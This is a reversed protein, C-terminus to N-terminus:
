FVDPINSGARLFDKLTTYGLGRLNKALFLFLYATQLADELADHQEFLPIGHEVSLKNLNFARQGKKGVAREHKQQQLHFAAALKVSDLSPNRIKGGLTKALARNLFALDILVYHGLLVSDSCYQVFEPLVEAASPARKIQQPTIRHVLTSDKPLDRTPQMYTFFNDGAIIRLGRIRVAGISVIQDHRVNLGTLETDFCVIDYSEIDGTQDFSKLRQENEIMCPHKPMRRARLWSWVNLM